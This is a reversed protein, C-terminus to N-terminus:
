LQVVGRGPLLGRGVEVAVPESAVSCRPLLLECSAALDHALLLFPSPLLDPGAHESSKRLAVMVRPALTRAGCRRRGM